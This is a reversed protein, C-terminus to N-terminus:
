FVSLSDIHIYFSHYFLLTPTTFNPVGLDRWLVYHVM